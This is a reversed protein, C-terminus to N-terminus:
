DSTKLLRSSRRWDPHPSPRWSGALWAVPARAAVQQARGSEGRAISRGARAARNWVLDDLLAIPRLCGGSSEGATRRSGLATDDPLRQLASALSLRVKPSPDTKALEAFKSATSATPAKGHDCLLRIAWARVHESADDLLGQLVKEDLGGTAYLAWLARLRRSVDPNKALVDRLQNNAEGLDKGAVAREQLLRRATRVYWDNKHLQYRALALDSEGALDVKM